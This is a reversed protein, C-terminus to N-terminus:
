QIVRDASLLVQPPFTLALARAADLNAVLEFRTPREIPLGAPDAGKLIKDVYVATRRYLDPRYPGYSILGGVDVFESYGYMVPLRARKANDVVRRRHSWIVPDDFVILGECRRAVADDFAADIEEPTRALLLEIRIGMSRAASFTEGTFVVHSSNDPNSLIAVRSVKGLIQALLQLRRPSLEPTLLTLGTITGGPRALSAVLKVRVPDAVAVIVIPIRGAGAQAALSAPTAASVIVDVKREVLEAVLEPLREHRGNAWRPELVINEGEVYGLERLGQRCATWLHVGQSPIFSFLYGVRPVNTPRAARALPAVVLAAAAGLFRRRDGQEM